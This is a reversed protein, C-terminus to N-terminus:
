TCVCHRTTNAHFGWKHRFCDKVFQQILRELVVTGTYKPDSHVCFVSTCALLNQPKLEKYSLSTNTLVRTYFNGHCFSRGRRDRFTSMEGTM